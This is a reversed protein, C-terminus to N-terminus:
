ALKLPGNTWMPAITPVSRELIVFAQCLLAKKEFSPRSSSIKAEPQLTPIAQVNEAGAPPSCEIQVGIQNHFLIWFVDIQLPERRCLTLVDTNRRSFSNALYTKNTVFFWFLFLIWLFILLFVQSTLCVLLLDISSNQAIEIKLGKKRSGATSQNEPKGIGRYNRLINCTGM